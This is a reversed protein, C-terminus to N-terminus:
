KDVGMASFVEQPVDRRTVTQSSPNFDVYGLEDLEPLVTNCISSRVPERTAPTAIRDTDAVEAGFVVDVLEELKATRHEHLYRLIYRYYPDSLVDSVDGSVQATGQIVGGEFEGTSRDHAM